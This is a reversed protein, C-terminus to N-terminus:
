TIDVVLGSPAVVCAGIQFMDAGGLQGRWVWFVTNLWGLNKAATATLETPSSQPTLKVETLPRWTSLIPHRRVTKMRTIM